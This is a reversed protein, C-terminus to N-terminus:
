GRGLSHIHVETRLYRVKDALMELKTKMTKVPLNSNEQSSNEQSSNEEKMSAVILDWEAKDERGREMTDVNPDDMVWIVFHLYTQLFISVPLYPHISFLLHNKTYDFTQPPQPPTM